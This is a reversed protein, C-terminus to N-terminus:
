AMQINVKNYANPTFHCECPLGKLPNCIPASCPSKHPVLRCKIQKLAPEKFLCLPNCVGKFPKPVQCCADKLAIIKKMQSM